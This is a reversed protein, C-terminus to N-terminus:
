VSIIYHPLFIQMPWICGNRYHLPVTIYVDFSFWSNWALIMSSLPLCQYLHFCSKAKEENSISVLLDSIWISIPFRMVQVAPAMTTQLVPSSIYSCIRKPTQNKEATKPSASFVMFPKGWCWVTIETVTLFTPILSWDIPYQRNRGCNLM